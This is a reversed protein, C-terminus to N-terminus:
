EKAKQVGHCNKCCNKNKYLILSKRKFKKRCYYCREKKVYVFVMFLAMFFVLILEKRIEKIKEAIRRITIKPVEVEPEEPEEVEEEIDIVSGGGSPGGGEVPFNVCCLTRNFYDINGWHSDEAQFLSGITTGSCVTTLGCTIDSSCLSHNFYGETVSVHTDNQQFLSLVINEGSPCAYGRLNIAIIEPYCVSYNFFDPGIAIHTDNEQFVSFLFTETAQCSGNYVAVSSGMVTPALILAIIGLLILKKKIMKLM